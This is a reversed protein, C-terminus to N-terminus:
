PYCRLFVEADTVHFGAKVAVEAFVGRGPVLTGSFTGDYIEKVGCSPSRPQLIILDPLEKKAIELAAEAGRRVAADVSVGGRNTVEGGIIEAPIRPVPLGGLVEPCVPIVTHGALRELLEPNRNSGGNYKCNEGLLCASVAIKM